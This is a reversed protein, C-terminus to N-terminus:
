EESIESLEINVFRIHAQRDYFAAKYFIEAIKEDNGDFVETWYFNHDVDMPKLKWDKPMVVIMFVDDFGCEDVIKLDPYLEKVKTWAATEQKENGYLQGNVLVRKPFLGGELIEQQGKQESEQIGEPTGAHLGRGELVAQLMAPSFGKM